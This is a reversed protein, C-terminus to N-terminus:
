SEHRVRFMLLFCALVRNLPVFCAVSVLLLSLSIRTQATAIILLASILLFFCLWLRVGWWLNQSSVRAETELKKMLWWAFAFKLLLAIVIGILAQNANSAFLIANSAITPNTALRLSVVLLTIGVVFRLYFNLWYVWMKGYLNLLMSAAFMKFAGVFMLLGLLVFSSVCPIIGFTAIMDGALQIAFPLSGTVGMIVITMAQCVVVLLGMSLASTGLISQMLSADSMPRVALFPPIGLYQSRHSKSGTVGQGMAGIMLLPCLIASFIALVCGVAKAGYSTSQLWIAVYIMQVLGTLVVSLLLMGLGHLRWERWGQAAMPSTFPESYRVTTLSETFQRLGGALKWQKALAAERNEVSLGAVRGRGLWRFWRMNWFEFWEISHRGQHFCIAYAIWSSLYFLAQIFLHFSATWQLMGGVILLNTPAICVTPAFLVREWAVRFTMMAFCYGFNLFGGYIFIVLALVVGRDRFGEPLANLAADPVLLGCVGAGWIMQSTVNGVLSTTVYTTTSIPLRAFFKPFLSEPLDVSAKLDAFSFMASVRVLFPISLLAGAVMCGFALQPVWVSLTWCVVLVLGYWLLGLTLQRSHVFWLGRLLRDYERFM